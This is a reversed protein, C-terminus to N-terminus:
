DWRYLRRMLPDINTRYGTDLVHRYPPTQLELSSLHTTRFDTQPQISPVPSFRSVIALMVLWYLALYRQQGKNKVKHWPQLIYFWRFRFHQTVKTAKKSGKIKDIRAQALKIRDTVTQLQRRNKEVSESVRFSVCVDVGDNSPVYVRGCVTYLSIHSFDYKM